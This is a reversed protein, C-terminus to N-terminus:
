IVWPAGMRGGVMGVVVGIAVQYPWPLARYATWLAKLQQKLKEV